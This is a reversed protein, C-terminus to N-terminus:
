ALLHPRVHRGTGGERRDAPARRVPLTRPRPPRCHGTRRPDPRPRRRRLRHRHTGARPASRLLHRPVRHAPRHRRCRHLRRGRETRHGTGQPRAGRPRDEHQGDDVLDLGPQPRAPRERRRDVGLVAGLGARLTRPDRDALRRRPAAQPPLPGDANRRRPEHPGQHPRLRHHLLLRGPREDSRLHRHRDAARHDAGPRGSRGRRRQRCRAPLVSAPEGAPRTSCSAGLRRDAGHNYTHRERASTRREKVLRPLRRANGSSDSQEFRCRLIGGGTYPDLSGAHAVRRHLIGM